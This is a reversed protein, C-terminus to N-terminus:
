SVVFLLLSFSILFSLINSSIGTSVDILTVKANDFNITTDKNMPGATCNLTMRSALESQELTELQEVMINVSEAIESELVNNPFNSLLFRQLMFTPM